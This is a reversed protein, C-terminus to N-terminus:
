KKVIKLAEIKQSKKRIEEQAFMDKVAKEHNEIEERLGVSQNEISKTAIKEGLIETKLQEIVENRGLTPEYKLVNNAMKKALHNAFHNSLFDPLYRQEGAKIVFEEGSYSCVFDEEDKNKFLITDYKM